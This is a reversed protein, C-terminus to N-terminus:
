ETMYKTMREPLQAADASVSLFINTSCKESLSALREIFDALKEFDQGGIKITSDVFFDTIDYNGACMGSIFGYLDEYGNVGYEDVVVLRARHSIDYILIGEKEVFVVNGKSEETAKNCLAILRKTKGSGKNGLILTIM